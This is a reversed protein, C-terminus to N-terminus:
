YRKENIRADNTYRTNIQNLDHWLGLTLQFHRTASRSNKRVFHKIKTVGVFKVRKKPRWKVIESVLRSKM